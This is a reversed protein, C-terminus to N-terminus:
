RNILSHITQTFESTDFPKEFFAYAGLRLAEKKNHPQFSMVIVHTDPSMDKIKELLELGSMKPMSVDTIVIDAPDELFDDWAQIANEFRMIELPNGHIDHVITYVIDRFGRNDDVIIIKM